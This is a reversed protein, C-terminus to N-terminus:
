LRASRVFEMKFRDFEGEIATLRANTLRRGTVAEFITLFEDRKTTARLEYQTRAGSWARQFERRQMGYMMSQAHFRHTRRYDRLSDGVDDALTVWICNRFIEFRDLTPTATTIIRMRVCSRRACFLGVLGVDVDHSMERALEDLERDPTNLAMLELRSRLSDQDKPDALILRVECHQNGAVMLRAATHRGSLGRFDYLDTKKLDEMLLRNFYPNPKQTGDFTHSPIFGIHIERVEDRIGSLAFQLRDAVAHAWVAGFVDNTLLLQAAAFVASALIGTSVAFITAKLPQDDTAGAVAMGVLALLIMGLVLVGTRSWFLKKLLSLPSAAQESTM